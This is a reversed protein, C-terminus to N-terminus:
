HRDKYNKQKYKGEFEKRITDGKEQQENFFVKVKVIPKSTNAVFIIISIPIFEM